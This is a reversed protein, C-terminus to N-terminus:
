RHPPSQHSLISLAANYATEFGDIDLMLDKLKGKKTRYVFLVFNDEEFQSLLDIEKPNKGNSTFRGAVKAFCLNGQCGLFPARFMEDKLIKLHYCGAPRKARKGGSCAPNTPDTTTKAFTVVIGADSEIDGSVLFGFNDLKLTAGDVKVTVTNNGAKTVVLTVLCAGKQCQVQWNGVNRVRTHQGAATATASCSFALLLLWRACPGQQNTIFWPM